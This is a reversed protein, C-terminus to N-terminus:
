AAGGDNRARQLEARMADYGGPRNRIWAPIDTGVVQPTIGHRHIFEALRYPFLPIPWPLGRERRETAWEGPTRDGKEANCELCAPALNALAVGGGRSVPVIHDVETAPFQCYACDTGRDDLGLIFARLKPTIGRRIQRLRIEDLRATM